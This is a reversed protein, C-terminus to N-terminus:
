PFVMTKTACSLRQHTGRVPPLAVRSVNLESMTSSGGTRQPGLLM